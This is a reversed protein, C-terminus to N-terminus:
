SGLTDVSLRVEMQGELILGLLGSHQQEQPVSAGWGDVMADVKELFAASQM